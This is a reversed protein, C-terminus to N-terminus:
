SAAVHLTMPGIVSCDAALRPRDRSKGSKVRPRHFVLGGTLMAGLRPIELPDDIDTGLFRGTIRQAITREQPPAPDLTFGEPLDPANIPNPIRSQVEDLTFGEPLSSDAM